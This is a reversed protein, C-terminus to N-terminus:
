GGRQRELEDVRAQLAELQARTRDLVSRQIDFEERTVLDMRAFVGTVLAKINKDLDQAPASQLLAKLRASLDDLLAANM